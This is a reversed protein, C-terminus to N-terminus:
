RWTHRFNLVRLWADSCADELLDQRRCGRRRLVRALEVRWRAYLEGYAELDALDRVRDMLEEDSMQAYGNAM